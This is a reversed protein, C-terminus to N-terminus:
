LVANEFLSEEVGDPIGALEAQIDVALCGVGAVRCSGAHDEGEAAGKDAAAAIVGVVYFIEVGERRVVIGHEGDGIPEPEFAYAM